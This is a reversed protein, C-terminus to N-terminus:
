PVADPGALPYAYRFTLCGARLGTCYYSLIEVKAYRGDRTRVVYAHRKPQLLHTVMSYKYWRRIAANTTDSGITTRVYGSAPARTVADFAVLGLDAIAEGAVVHYRRVALDWGATDPLALVEGRTLSVFRWSTADSAEVTLTDVPWPRRPDRAVGSPAPDFTPVNRRTLSAVVLYGIAFLFLAFGGILPVPVSHRWAGRTMARDADAGNPGNPRSTM